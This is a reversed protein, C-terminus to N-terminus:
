PGRLRGLLLRAVARWPPPLRGDADIAALRALQERPARAEKWRARSLERTVEGLLQAEGGVAARAEAAACLREVAEPRGEFLSELRRAFPGPAVSAKGPPPLESSPLTPTEWEFADDSFRDSRPIKRGRPDLRLEEAKRSPLPAIAFPAAKEPQATSEKADVHPRAPAAPAPARGKVEAMPKAPLEAPVEVVAGIARRFPSRKIPPALRAPPAAPLSAPPAAAPLQRSSAATKRFLKPDAAADAAVVAANAKEADLILPAFADPLNPPWPPALGMRRAAAPASRHRACTADLLKKWEERQAAPLEGAGLAFLAAAAGAHGEPAASLMERVRSQGLTSAAAQVARAFTGAQLSVAAAAGGPLLAAPLGAESLRRAASGLRPDTVLDGAALFLEGAPGPALGAEVLARVAALRSAKPVRLDAALEGLVRAGEGQALEKQEEVPALLAQALAALASTERHRAERLFDALSSWDGAGEKKLTALVTM